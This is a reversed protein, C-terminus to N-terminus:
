FSSEIKSQKQVGVLLFIEIENKEFLLVKISENPGLVDPKFMMHKMEIEEIVQDNERIQRLRHENIANNKKNLTKSSNEPIDIIKADPKDHYSLL